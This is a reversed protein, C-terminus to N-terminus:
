VKLNERSWQQLSMMVEAQAPRYSDFAARAATYGSSHHQLSSVSLNHHPVSYQSQEVRFTPHPDEQVTHAKLWESVGSDRSGDTWVLM